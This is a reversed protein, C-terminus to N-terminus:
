NKRITISFTQFRMMILLVLVLYNITAGKVEISNTDEDLTTEDNITTTEPPPHYSTPNLNSSRLSDPTHLISINLTSKEGTIINKNTKVKLVITEIKEVNVNKKETIIIFDHKTNPATSTNQYISYSSNTSNDNPISTNTFINSTIGKTPASFYISFIASEGANIYLDEGFKAKPVISIVQTWEVLNGLRDIATWIITHKGLPLPGAPTSYPVIKGDVLDTAQPAAPSIDTFDDTAALVFNSKGSITPPTSDLLMHTGNNYEFINSLGDNDYDELADKPNNPDLGFILEQQDPIGDNDSDIQANNIDEPPLKYLWIGQNTNNYGVFLDLKNLYIFKSLPGNAENVPAAGNINKLLVWTNNNLNYLWTKRGGMWYLLANKAPHYAVGATYKIASPRNKINTAKSFQGNKYDFITLLSWDNVFARKNTTDISLTGFNMNTRLSRKGSYTTSVPDFFQAIEKGVTLISGDNLTATMARNPISSNRPHSTWKKQSINFEWINKSQITGKFCYFAGTWYWLSNTLPTYALSDYTHSAGPQEIPIPCPLEPTADPLNYPETLRSWLLTEFNFVYIENGGYDRHGGGTFYWRSIGDFAGGGWATFVAKSGTAGWTNKSVENKTYLTPKVSTGPIEYWEGPTMQANIEQLKELNITQLAYSTPIYLFVISTIIIKYTM